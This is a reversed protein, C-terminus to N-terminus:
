MNRSILSHGFRCSLCRKKDCYNKKLQLVAQSQKANEIKLGLSLFKRTITNKEAKIQEYWLLAKDQVEQLEFIKGYIFTFPIVTNILLLDISSNGLQVSKSKSIRDFYSHNLWYNHAKVKILSKIDNLRNMELMKTLLGASSMVLAAFQSLRITPFNSPRMRLFKWIKSDLADLCYKESLFHYEMKLANPYEDKFKKALMGSQGFILAELQDPRNAHKSLIQYPLSKALLEFADANTNFGFNRCLQRYFIETFNQQNLELQQAIGLAKEELREICLSEFWAFQTFHDIQHIQQECPIWNTNNLFSQYTTLLQPDFLGKLVITPIKEGNLRYVPVDDTYVVHLIINDYSPDNQHKHLKWDSSKVHIEINGAWTTNEIKIKANFLDPGSDRNRSGPHIIQIKEGSEHVFLQDTYFLKNSWLYILFEENM